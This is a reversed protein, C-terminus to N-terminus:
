KISEFIASAKLIADKPTVEDSWVDNKLDVLDLYLEESYMKAHPELSEIFEVVSAQLEQYSKLKVTLNKMTKNSQNIIISSIYV